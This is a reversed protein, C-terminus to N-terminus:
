QVVTMTGHTTITIHPEVHMCECWADMCSHVALVLTEATPKVAAHVKEGEVMKHKLNVSGLCCVRLDQQWTIINM